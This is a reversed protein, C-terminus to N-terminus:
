ATQGCVVLLARAAQLVVRGGDHRGAAVRTVSFSEALSHESLRALGVELGDDWELFATGDGVGALATLLGPSM